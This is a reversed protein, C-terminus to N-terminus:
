RGAEVDAVRRAEVDAAHNARLRKQADEVLQRRGAALTGLGAMLGARNRPGIGAIAFLGIVDRERSRLMALVKYLRGTTSVPGGQADIWDRLQRVDALTDVLLDLVLGNEANALEPHAALVVDRLQQGLRQRAEARLRPSRAGHTAAARNGPKFTPM